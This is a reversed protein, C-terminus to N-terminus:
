ISLFTCGPAFFTPKLAHDPHGFIASAIMFMEFNHYFEFFEFCNSVTNEMWVMLFIHFFIFTPFVHYKRIKQIVTALLAHNKSFKFDSRRSEYTADFVSINVFFYHKQTM